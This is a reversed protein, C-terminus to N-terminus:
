LNLFDAQTFNAPLPRGLYKDVHLVDYVDSVTQFTANSPLNFLSILKKMFPAYTLNM